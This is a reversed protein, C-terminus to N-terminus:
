GLVLPSRPSTRYQLLVLALVDPASASLNTPLVAGDEYMAGLFREVCEIVSQGAPVSKADAHWHLLEKIEGPMHELFQNESEAATTM